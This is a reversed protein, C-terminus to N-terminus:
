LQEDARKIWEESIKTSTKFFDIGTDKLIRNRLKILEDMYASFKTLLADVEEPTQLSKLAAPNYQAEGALLDYDLGTIVALEHLKKDNYFTSPWSGTKNGNCDRCLLTASETTLPWLYYVPLTHDMPKEKASTVKSLDKGCNFCKHKFRKEVEKSRIKPNGSIEILLRRKQAAERHQDTLRTGNKIANYPNKCLKCEGQRGSKRSGHNDFLDIPKLTCCLLCYKYLGAEEIYDDHSVVFEGSSRTEMEGSDNKVDMSYDFLKTKGGSYIEYGCKPCKIQFDDGISDAKVFIFEQCDANLCQFGKWLVDGQGKVHEPRYLGTKNVKSYPKRRAM